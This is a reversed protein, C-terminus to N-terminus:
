IQPTVGYDFPLCRLLYARAENWPVYITETGAMLPVPVENLQARLYYNGKKSKFMVLQLNAAMPVVYFDRWHLGVTDFYNTLYYCGQMRMLALLPMLTEAHGFRLQVPAISKPNAIIEDFTQILNELLPASIDAPLTSLTSASRKLYHSLNAVSWLQNQDTATLFPAPSVSMEIPALSTLVAFEAQAVEQAEDITFLEAVPKTSLKGIIEVPTQQRGFESLVNKLEESEIFEKFPESLDFFRLLPSNCRGSLTSVDIHNDLRSLQHVFEYMSMICRPSYSSIANVKNDKFLPRYNQMMRAAIGRQEAVGLSSLAGWRGSSAEVLRDTITLLNKGTASLGVAEDIKVLAQRLITSQKASSPYRSGHRGVHNIMVPTLTDPYAASVTPIPYPRYSGLCEDWSYNTATPDAGWLNACVAVSLTFIIKRIM